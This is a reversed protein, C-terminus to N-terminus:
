RCFECSKNLIIVDPVDYLYLYNTNHTLSRSVSNTKFMNASFLVSLRFDSRAIFTEHFFGNDFPATLAIAYCYLKM